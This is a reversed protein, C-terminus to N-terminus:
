INLLKKIIEDDKLMGLKGKLSNAESYTEIDDATINEGTIVLPVPTRTHKRLKIPVPHDPLLAVSVNKKKCVEYVPGVIKADFDEIAQIKLKLDGMHSCEDMAEIHLYVFDYKDIACIAADAKGKYNTDIFGTAGEVNIVDMGACMAIGNIVDVASIIAGTKGAYKESFSIFNPRYGPSWPWIYNAPNTKDRNLPHKKLFKACKAILNNLFKVTFKAEKTDEKPKLEIDFINEGHSSDPKAYYVDPSFEEGHLVLLNRYSVGRIFSVKENGFENQLDDIIQDSIVKEIHGASYDKIKDDEITILNCRWAVDNDALKIGQSVAEIPGRGPYYKDLEYGLVSMNAVDSSTPFGAPLSLFNGSIGDKAVKDMNPTKAVELPTKGNLEELPEDAMGDALFILGKSM